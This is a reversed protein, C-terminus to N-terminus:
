LTLRPPQFSLPPSPNTPSPSRRHRRGQEDIQTLAYDLRRKGVTYTGAAKAQAIGERRRERIFRRKM